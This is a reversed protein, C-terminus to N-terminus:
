VWSKKQYIQHKRFISDVYDSKWINITDNNDVLSYNIRVDERKSINGIIKKQIGFTTYYGGGGEM